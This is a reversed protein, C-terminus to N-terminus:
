LNATTCPDACVSSSAFLSERDCIQRWSEEIVVHGAPARLTSGPGACVIVDPAIERIATRVAATFDFTTMVQTTTTYLWLASPDASWPTHINARGDILHVTPQRPALSALESRASAAVQACLETHFPGHGALRFPFTRGEGSEVRPLSALLAQVGLETGALVEHAGLRISRFVAHDPGHGNVEDLAQQVARVADPSRRWDADLTTTLIQGGDVGQQLRAMTAVLRWGEAVTLCGAAPLASYWGLSNGAVAAVEYEKRLREMSAMTSFYILEAANRGDLHLGPRFKDAADLERVTPRGEAHRAADAQDLADAVESGARVHRALYGLEDRGYSGRGPCLAVATERTM